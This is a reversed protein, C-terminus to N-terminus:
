ARRTSYAHVGFAAGLALLGILLLSPLDSATSPLTDTDGTTETSATSDYTATTGTTGTTATTGTTTDMEPNSEMTTGTTVPTTASSPAVVPEPSNMTDNQDDTRGIASPQATTTDMTGMTQDTQMEPEEAPTIPAPAAYGTTQGNPNTPTATTPEQALAAGASALTMVTAITLLQRKM